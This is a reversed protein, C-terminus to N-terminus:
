ALDSIKTESVPFKVDRRRNVIGPNIIEIFGLRELIKLMRQVLDPNFGKAADEMLRILGVSWYRNLYQGISSLMKVADEQKIKLESSILQALQSLTLQAPNVLNIGQAETATENVKAGEGEQTLTESPNVREQGQGGVTAEASTSAVAGEVEGKVEVRAAESAVPKTGEPQTEQGRLVDLLTRQGRVRRRQSPKASGRRQKVQIAIESPLKLDLLKGMVEVDGNVLPEPPGLVLDRQKEQIISSLTVYLTLLGVNNEIAWQRLESLKVRQKRQIYALISRKINELQEM